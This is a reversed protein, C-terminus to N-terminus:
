KLHFKIQKLFLSIERLYKGRDLHIVHNGPFWHIRCRDWHDWLIRSHKPPALRDGAGGIIMLREKPILPDYTLPCHAAMMHRADRTSMNALRLGTKLVTSAPYWQLMLDFLSVVPVNPISFYLREEVAALLASTYGGLSIGTVGVKEAGEAMLYDLFIRFDYVSHAVTENINSIGGAFYGHGSFPALPHRRAGHHPLTYLLIDYGQDYFWPLALFARNVWYPDAMFGHIVCITPKPGSNHRWYQAVARLNSKNKRYRARLRPNVPTFPSDFYLMECRGNKPHFGFFGAPKSKVEVCGPLPKQFFAAPDHTNAKERYIESDNLDHLLQFPNASLPLALCSVVTAVATRLAVDVAATSDVLMQTGLDLEFDDPFKHFSTELNDWWPQEPMIKRTHSYTANAVRSVNTAIGM